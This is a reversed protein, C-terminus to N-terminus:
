FDGFRVKKGQDPVYGGLVDRMMTRSSGEMLEDAFPLQISYVSSWNETDNSYRQFDLKGAGGGPHLIWFWEPAGMGAAKDVEAIWTGLDETVAGYVHVVGVGVAEADLLLDTEDDEDYVYSPLSSFDTDDEDLLDDDEPEPAAAALPESGADAPDGGDDAPPADGDVPTDVPEPDDPLDDGADDFDDLDDVDEDAAEKGPGKAPETGPKKGPGAAPKKGPKKGPKAAPKKGPKKAPKAVPKKAPKKAPKAM